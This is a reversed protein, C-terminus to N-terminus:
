SEVRLRKATVEREFRDALPRREVVGDAGLSVRPRHGLGQGLLEPELDDASPVTRRIEVEQEVLGSGRVPAPLHRHLRPEGDM